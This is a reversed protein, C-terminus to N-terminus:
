VTIVVVALFTIGLTIPIAQTVVCVKLYMSLVLLPSQEKSRCLMAMKNIM